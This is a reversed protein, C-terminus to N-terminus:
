TISAPSTRVTLVPREASRLVRETTSGLLTPEVGAAGQTGMAVLDADVEAAYDLITRAPRGRRVATEVDVGAETLRAGVETTVRSGLRDFGGILDVVLDPDYLTVDVVYLVYVTADFATAVQQAHAVVADAGTSGDTALVISEYSPHKVHRGGAVFVPISANSVLRSATSGFLTEALGGRGHSGVALLDVANREAYDLLTRHVTGSEVSSVVDVGRGRARNAVTEVFAEARRRMSSQVHERTEEDDPGEYPPVVAVVHLTADFVATLSLAHDAAATAGDSGDTALLVTEFDTM